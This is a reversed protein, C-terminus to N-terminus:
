ILYDKQWAPLHGVRSSKRVDSVVDTEGTEVDWGMDTEVNSGLDGHGVGRGRDVDNMINGVPDVLVKDELHLDPFHQRLNEIPEWTAHEMEGDSWEVLAQRVAQGAVLTTRQGYVRVPHAPPHGDVFDSPFPLPKYLWRLPDSGDCKPPELKPKPIYSTSGREYGDEFGQGRNRAHPPGGKYPLLLAEVRAYQSDLKFAHLALQTEFEDQLQKTTDHIADRLEKFRADIAALHQMLPNAELTM